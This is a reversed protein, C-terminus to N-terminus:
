FSTKGSANYTRSSNRRQENQSRAQALAVEAADVDRRPIAGQQLLQKRSEYIERRMSRPSRRRRMWSRRRFKSRCAAGVTMVYTSEAIETTAKAPRQPRLCIRTRWSRWWSDRKVRTGRQVYFKKVNSTIKPAVTAQELSVSSCGRYCDARDPRAAGADDARQRDAGKRKKRAAGGCLCLLVAVIVGHMARHSFIQTQIKRETNM